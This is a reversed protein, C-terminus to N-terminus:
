DCGVLAATEDDAILAYDESPLAMPQKRGLMSRGRDLDVREPM